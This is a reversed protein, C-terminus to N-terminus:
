VYLKCLHFLETPTTVPRCSPYEVYHSEMTPLTLFRYTDKYTGWIEQLIISIPATGGSSCLGLLSATWKGGFWVSTIFSHLLVEHTEYPKIVHLCTLEVNVYEKCNSCLVHTDVHIHTHTNIDSRCVSTQKICVSIRVNLM